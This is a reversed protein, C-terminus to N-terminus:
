ICFACMIFFEFLFYSYCQDSLFTLYVIKAFMTIIITILPHKRNFLDFHM